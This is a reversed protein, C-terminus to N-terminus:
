RRATAEVGTACSYHLAKFAIGALSSSCDADNWKRAVTKERKGGADEWPEFRM